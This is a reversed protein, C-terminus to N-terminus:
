SSKSIIAAQLADSVNTSVGTSFSNAKATSLVPSINNLSLSTLTLSQDGLFMSSVDSAKSMNWGSLNLKNLNPMSAFMASFTTSKSVNLNSLGKIESLNTKYFMASFDSVNSSNFKSVDLSTLSTTVSFMSAFSTVKATNFSSLDISKLKKNNYFMASMNTVDSTDWKNLGVIETLNEDSSFYSQISGSAKVSDLFTITVLSKNLSTQKPNGSVQIPQSSNIAYILANGSSDILIRGNKGYNDKTVWKSDSENPRDTFITTGNIVQGINDFLPTTISKIQPRAVMYISAALAVVIAIWMIKSTEHDSM